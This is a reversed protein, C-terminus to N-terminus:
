KKYAQYNSNLYDLLDQRQAGYLMLLQEIDYPLKNAFGEDYLKDLHKMTIKGPKYPRGKESLYFLTSLKRAEVESPESVYDFDAQTFDNRFASKNLADIDVEPVKNLIDLYDDAKHSLEHIYTTNLKDNKANLFMKNKGENWHGEEEMDKPKQTTISFYTPKDLKQLREKRKEIFVPSNYKVENVLEGKLIANEEEMMKTLLENEAASLNDFGRDFLETTTFGYKQKQYNNM